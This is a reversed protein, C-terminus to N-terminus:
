PEATACIVWASGAESGGGTPELYQVTWGSGDLKPKSEGLRYDGFHNGGGGIAVKGRPCDVDFDAPAPGSVSNVPGQVIEYGPIFAPGPAGDVGPPGEPGSSGPPGESGAPGASGPPGDSGPPGAPGEPGPPGAPGAQGTGDAPIYYGNLDVVINVSGIDNYVQFSGVDSLATVVANPVPPQGPAPNLSAALPREGSPWITLFTQMTAGLATINLSVANAAVPIDTCKGNDGAAQFTATAQAGFTGVNGVRATDPRTDALRCPSIPVFVSGTEDTAAQTTLVGAAFTGGIVLAAILATRPQIGASRNLNM